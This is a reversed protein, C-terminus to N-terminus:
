TCLEVDNIKENLNIKLNIGVSALEASLYKFIYPISIEQIKNSKNCLKCITVNKKLNHGDSSKEM